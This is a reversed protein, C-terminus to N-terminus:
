ALLDSLSRASEPFAKALRCDETALLVGLRQALAVFQADYASIKYQAALRLAELMEIPREGGALLDTANAWLSGAKTLPLGDVKVLTALINLFEHRWLSPCCWDPDRDWLARAMATKEGRILLYAVVNTDVVIV